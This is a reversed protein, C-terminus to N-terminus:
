SRPLIEAGTLGLHHDTSWVTSIKRREISALSAADIYTLKAGRFQDLMRLTDAHGEPSHPLLTLGDLNDVFGRFNRAAEEGLRHLFWTYGEAVVLLSTIWRTGTRGFM